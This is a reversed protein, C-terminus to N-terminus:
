RGLHSRRRARRPNEAVPFSVGVARREDGAVAVEFIVPMGKCRGAPPQGPAFAAQDVRLREDDSTHIFGHHKIEGDFWLMEGRM